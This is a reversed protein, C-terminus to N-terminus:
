SGYGTIKLSQRPLRVALAPIRIPDSGFRLLLEWPFASQKTKPWVSEFPLHGLSATM